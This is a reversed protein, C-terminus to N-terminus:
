RLEVESALYITNLYLPQNVKTQLANAKYGHTWDRGGDVMTSRIIIRKRGKLECEIVELTLTCSITVLSDDIEWFSANVCFYSFITQYTLMRCDRHKNKKNNKKYM